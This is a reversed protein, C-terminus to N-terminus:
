CLSIVKVLQTEWQGWRTHNTRIEVVHVERWKKDQKIKDFSLGSQVINNTHVEGRPETFPIIM